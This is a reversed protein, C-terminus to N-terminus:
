MTLGFLFTRESPLSCAKIIEVSYVAQPCMGECVHDREDGRGKCKNEREECMGEGARGEREEWRVCTGKRWEEVRM